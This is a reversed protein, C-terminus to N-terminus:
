LGVGQGVLEQGARAPKVDGPGGEMRGAMEDSDSVVLLLCGRLESLNRPHKKCLM